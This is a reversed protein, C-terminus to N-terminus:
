PNQATSLMNPLVAEIYGAPNLLQGAAHEALEFFQEGFLGLYLIMVAMVITPGYMLQLQNQEPAASSADVAVPSKKWFAEAWIKTMSFLTFIGVLLAVGAIVYFEVELSAKVLAFKAWFGSLPPIGALSFASIFFLLSLWPFARYLGGLSKLEETGRVKQVIGSVFFLNTKALINHVLYFLTAALSLKTFIALGMIMYGIQSVIHFSLIRRMNYHAAAGLVGTVMTFGAIWLLLNQQVIFSSEFFLTFARILAYVGVKTLLSAFIASVAAPPTHYSAPLWFFFPFLAAKVGFAVLFLVATSNILFVNPETSLKLAIDAMNLTGVKAYMLGAGALFLSSSLLNIVVYKFAGELQPREGGLALLVFSAMLMVEFWVYLNFLDGTLFAGNVGVLLMNFLSFYFRKQRGVDIDRLSYLAALLGMLSAICVMVASFIDAVLVIGFPAQWNGLNLIVYGNAQTERLLCLAAITVAVSGIVGLIRQAVLGRFILGLVACLLPILIPLIVLNNM